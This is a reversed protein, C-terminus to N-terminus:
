PTIPTRARVGGNFCTRTNPSDMVIVLLLGLCQVAFAGLGQSDLFPPNVGGGCLLILNLCTRRVLERSFLSAPTCSFLGAEGLRKGSGSFRLAEMVPGAGTDSGEVNGKPGEEPGEGLGM